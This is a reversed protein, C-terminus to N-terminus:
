LIKIIQIGAFSSKTQDLQPTLLLFRTYKHICVKLIFVIMYSLSAVELLM